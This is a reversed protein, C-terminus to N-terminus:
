LFSLIEASEEAAPVVPLDPPPYEARFTELFQERDNLRILVPNECASAKGFFVAEREAISSLMSSYDKGIYNALFDKSTEDFCRMAFVSNCQNLITKTVSATRQTVVLCGLGYKRGQLIARATGMTAAKDGESAVSNWEPILSHAEEFVLCVKAHDVMEGELLSLATETIIKTVEVPTINWLAAGRKWNPGVKYQKPESVQKTAFLRSPNYIKLKRANSPDVFGRLDNFIAQSFAPLSGGEDPNDAWEGRDKEGAQQIADICVQEYVPDIFKALELVYQNTMDLCIVKIGATIMREILEVSLMSKGVGLIGLIATNHTVLENINKFGVSYNTKPFHGVAEPNYAFTKEDMLFVPSNLKPLWKALNFKRNAEVWVGVKQAQARAYGYTNKQHVIEEKALGGIVQYLVKRNGIFTEVLRGEELGDDRIVEFYLKDISTEPAVIGVLLNRDGLISTIKQNASQYGGDEVKIASNDPLLQLLTEFKGEDSITELELARLLVGEDRGVYDLALCVKPPSHPDKILLQTGLDVRGPESQRILIIGPNQYAVVIGTVETAAAAGWFAKIKIFLKALSEVPEFAVTIAWALVIWLVERLDGRHFSFIAFTMVISFIAKPSGLLDITLRLSNSCKKLNETKSDKTLIAGFSMLLVASCYLLAILFVLRESESWGTWNNVLLVAIAGAVSYSIADVPKSYFPTLLRSGLLLSLISAYCWFGKDGVPPYFVGFAYFCIVALILIEVLLVYLRTSQKLNQNSM